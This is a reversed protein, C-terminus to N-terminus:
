DTEDGSFPQDLEFSTIKPKGIYHGQLYDVGMDTLIRATEETEVFEAITEKGMIHAINHMSQVIERNLKNHVLGTIFSGDIKVFHVPLDKLYAYSAYGAGFDDLSTQCGLDQLRQLNNATMSLDSMAITETIEFTLRNPDINTEEIKETIYDIISEDRFSAASLNVSLEPTFKSAYKLLLVAHHIVWRDISPMLGFREAPPIFGSPMIINGEEDQMRLLIEHHRVEGAVNKIPQCAIVFMDDELAQKIRRTWGIDDYLGIIDKQDDKTYLHIKNKGALKAAHCSYDAWALLDETSAGPEVMVVGLSCGVDVTERHYMFKYDHINQRFMEAVEIAQEENVDYLIMAFEDGGIRALLDSRRTRKQLILTIQVLLEDGAIHGLTDNVYKFNDLDLYLLATTPVTQRAVRDVLHEVEQMFYYRNYLGTLGDHEALRRLNEIMAKHESVDEVIATFKVKGNLIYSSIKIVAHFVNGDKRRANIEVKKDEAEDIKEPTLLYEFNISANDFLTSTFLMDLKEGAVEEETYGFLKEAARNFSEVIRNEDYTIIGEAAHDLVAELRLQRSNVQERMNNFAETLLRSETTKIDTTPLTVPKGAAEANLANAVLLLPRRVLLEFIFFGILIIAIVVFLSFWILYSIKNVVKHSQMMFRDAYNREHVEIENLLERAENFCAQLKDTVIKQSGRWDPYTAFRESIDDLEKGLKHTLDLILQRNEGFTRTDQLRSQMDHFALQLRENKRLLEQQIEPTYPPNLIVDRHLNLELDQLAEKVKKTQLIIQNHNSSQELNKASESYVLFQSYGVVGITLLLIPLVILLFRGQLTHSLM